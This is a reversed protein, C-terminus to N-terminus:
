GFFLIRKILSKIKLKDLIIVSYYWIYFKVRVHFPFHSKVIELRNNLFVNDVKFATLGEFDNFVSVLVPVYCFSLCPDCMCKINLDYDAWLPFKLDFLYRSFIIKPYFIAQQCINEKALRLLSFEGGFLVHRMPMYVDGYYVINSDVLRKAIQQIDVILIDDAGLFLIFDGSSLFVARNFADYVGSDPRSDIVIKLDNIQRLVDVTGDTSGGDVVM